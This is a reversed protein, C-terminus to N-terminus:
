KMGIMELFAEVRNRIQGLDQSYDTELRLVPHGRDALARVVRFSEAAYPTCFSLNYHIVGHAGLDAAMRAVTDLREHNPTFCACEIRLQRDCIADLIGARSDASPAVLDRCNRSGVCSEEGVVVGGCREVVFPVKWNPIAMPSGSVLIRPAGAPAVGEGRRIREELEDCLINVKDTFRVPDDYFSIQHVLLADLGSIPAPDAARLRNLRNLARRKANVVDVAHRLAEATVATGTLEEVRATFRELEARWLARDPGAKMQPLEMVHMPVLEGFKEYAKKKGDCTTEGVVLDALEIYPCLRALKFGFFSKILPCTAQPLYQEARDFGVEAGGCLGILVGGAALVVEEPVFVCFSAVIKRGQERAEALERVRLGHIESVVFDFYEMARPRDPQSLFMEQYAQGLSQLLADHAELDLGLDQWLARYAGGNEM